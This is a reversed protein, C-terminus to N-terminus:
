GLKFRASSQRSGVKGGSRLGDADDAKYKIATTESACNEFRVAYGVLGGLKIEMEEGARKAVSM